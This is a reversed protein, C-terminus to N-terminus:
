FSKNLWSDGQKIQLFTRLEDADIENREEDVYTYSNTLFDLPGAIIKYIKKDSSKSRFIGHLPEQTSLAYYGEINNIKARQGEFFSKDMMAQAILKYNNLFSIEPWQAASLHIFLLPYRKHFTEIDFFSVNNITNEELPVCLLVSDKDKKLLINPQAYIPLKKIIWDNEGIPIPTQSIGIKNGIAQYLKNPKWLASPTQYHMMFNYGALDFNLRKYAVARSGDKDFGSIAVWQDIATIHIGYFNKPGIHMVEHSPHIWPDRNRIVVPDSSVLEFVSITLNNPNNDYITSSIAWRRIGNQTPFKLTYHNHHFLNYLTAIIPMRFIKTRKLIGNPLAKYSRINGKTDEIYAIGSDYFATKYERYKQDIKLVEGTEFCILATETQMGTRRFSDEQGILFTCFMIFLQFIKLSMKGIWLLYRIYSYCCLTFLFNIFFHLGFPEM